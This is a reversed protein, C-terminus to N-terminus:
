HAPTDAPVDMAFVLRQADRSINGLNGRYVGPIKFLAKPTGGKFTPTTTVDAAMLQLEDAAGPEVM